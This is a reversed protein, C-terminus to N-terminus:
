KRRSIDPAPNLRELEDATIIEAHEFRFAYRRLVEEKLPDRVVFIFGATEPRPVALLRSLGPELGRGELELPGIEDVVILRARPNLTALVEGAWLFVENNFEFRGVSIRNGASVGRHLNRCQGSAIHCLRREGAVVPALIGDVTEGAPLWKKLRTTKGSRVAGCLLYLRKHRDM